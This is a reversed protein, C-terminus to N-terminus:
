PPRLLWAFYKDPVRQAAIFFGLALLALYNRSSWGASPVLLGGNVAM